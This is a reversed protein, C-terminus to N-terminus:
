EAVKHEYCESCRDMTPVNYGIDKNVKIMMMMMMKHLM